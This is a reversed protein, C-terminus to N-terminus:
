DWAVCLSAGSTLPDRFHIQSAAESILVIYVMIFVEKRVNQKKMYDLVM